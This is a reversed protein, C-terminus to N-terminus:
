GSQDIDALAAVSSQPREVMLRRLEDVQLAFTEAAIRTYRNQIVLVDQIDKPM